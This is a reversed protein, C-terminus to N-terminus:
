RNSEKNFCQISTIDRALKGGCHYPFSLGDFISAQLSPGWIPGLEVMLVHEQLRNVLHLDNVLCHTLRCKMFGKTQTIKASSLAVIFTDM